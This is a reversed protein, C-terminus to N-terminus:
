RAPLMEYAWEAFSKTIGIANSMFANFGVLSYSGTNVLFACFFCFVLIKIVTFASYKRYQVTEFEERGKM